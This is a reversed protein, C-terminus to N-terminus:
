VLFDNEDFNWGGESTHEIGLDAEMQTVVPEPVAGEEHLRGIHPFSRAWSGVLVPSLRQRFDTATEFCKERLAVVGNRITWLCESYARVIAATDQFAVSVSAHPEPYYLDIAERALNCHEISARLYEDIFYLKQALDRVVKLRYKLDLDMRIYM